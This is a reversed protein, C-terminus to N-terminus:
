KEKIGLKNLAEALTHFVGACRGQKDYPYFHGAQVTVSPNKTGKGGFQKTYIGGPFYTWGKWQGKTIEEATM